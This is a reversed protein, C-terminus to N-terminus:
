AEWQYNYCVIGGKSCIRQVLEDEQRKARLRVAVMSLALSCLLVFVFLTRLGFRCHRAEFVKSWM